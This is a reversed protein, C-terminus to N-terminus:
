LVPPCSRVPCLWQPKWQWRQNVAVATITCYNIPGTCHLCQSCDKKKKALSKCSVQSVWKKALESTQYNVQSPNAAIAGILLAALLTTSPHSNSNPSKNIRYQYQAASALWERSPVEKVKMGEKEKTASAILPRWSLTNSSITTSSSSNNNITICESLLTWFSNGAPPLPHGEESRKLWRGRHERKAKKMPESQM